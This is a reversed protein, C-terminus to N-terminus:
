GRYSYKRIGPNIAGLLITLVLFIVLDCKELQLSFQKIFAINSNLVLCFLFPLHKTGLHKMGFDSHDKCSLIAISGKRDSVAVSNADMLFCDAVLRQAPDCYIQHLKKSEEHYSYFLVGDRCDGVVIRTFYTRLSTIMFRTRGVAFRKMREPSDNPFGCVYFANGASALFYHDLYPCIALVMGPWTTSSALRLQWTEAEDLKIGDYSYDDPSSCLSSSSLNETTYGVVDHFPSTRQSSSCAKSCITMSGSDSNQTHELCLIIVRGKTSEAEGSPLIAPGSSLSTGVVLVHENGVRVLEMSKGTEGPKLKYSSLV